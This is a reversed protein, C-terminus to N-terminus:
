SLSSKGPFQGLSVSQCIKEAKKIHRRIQRIQEDTYELRENGLRKPQFQIIHPVWKARPRNKLRTVVEYIFKSNIPPKNLDLWITYILQIEYLNKGNIKIGKTFEYSNPRNESQKEVLLEKLQRLSETVTQSLPISVNLVNKNKSVRTIESIKLLFLHSHSKYWDDFKIDTIDGWPQYYKKTKEFNLFLRNDTLALKYFEFWLRILQYNSKLQLRSM